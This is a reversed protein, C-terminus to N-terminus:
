EEGARKAAQFWNLGPKEKKLGFMEDQDVDLDLKDEAWEIATNFNDQEKEPLDDYSDANKMIKEQKHFNDIEAWENYRSNRSTM